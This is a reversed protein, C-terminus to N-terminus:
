RDVDVNEKVGEGEKKGGPKTKKACNEWIAEQESLTGNDPAEVHLSPEAAAGVLVSELM